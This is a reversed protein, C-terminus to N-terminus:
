RKAQPFSSIFIMGLRSVSQSRAHMHTDKDCKVVVSVKQNMSSALRLHCYENARGSARGDTRHLRSIDSVTSVRIRTCSTRSPQCLCVCASPPPLFFRCCCCYRRRQLQQYGLLSPQIFIRGDSREFNQRTSTLSTLSVHRAHPTINQMQIICEM